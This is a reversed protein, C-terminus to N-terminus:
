ARGQEKALYADLQDFTGQFGPTLFRLAEKFAKTEAETPEHPIGRLTLLTKGNHENLTLVNLIYRPWEPMMPHRALNAHKDAFGTRFVMREPAAIERYLFTGFMEVGDPMTSAYHFIGGPRFDLKM